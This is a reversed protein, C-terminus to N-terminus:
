SPSITAGPCGSVARQAPGSLGVECALAASKTRTEPRTDFAMSWESRRDGENGCGETTVRVALLERGEGGDVERVTREENQSNVRFRGVEGRLSGPAVGVCSLAYFTGDVAFGAAGSAGADRDSESREALGCGTTLLSLLLAAVAVPKVVM